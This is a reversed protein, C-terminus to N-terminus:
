INDLVHRATTLLKSSSVPKLLYAKIGIISASEISMKDSYGTCLIIPFNPHDALVTRALMEGTMRPMSMDTIILKYKEPDAQFAELASNPNEHCEVRYGKRTLIREFLQLIQEEDDIIMVKENGSSLPHSKSPTAAPHPQRESVPLYVDFRTGKNIESKVDISGELGKIIGLAVPLGLGSGNEKTSFYPDFIKEITKEDMGLGTDEVTLQIYVSNGNSGLYLHDVCSLSLTLTGGRDIMAHNANTILNMVVQHIQTPDALVLGCNPDISHRIEISQPLTARSLKIAEMVIAQMDVPQLELEKQRSFTLIQRTLDRARKAAVVIEQAAENEPSDNQLDEALMEAFGLIPSLINNFDHAIGGALTGVAELRQMHNLMSEIKKQHTLDRVLNFIAPRGEWKFRVSNTQVELIEGSRNLARYSHTTPLPEGNLRRNYLKTSAERDDPHIHQIFPTKLIEEKGYGTMECAKPNVFQVVEDQTIFVADNANEVLLRYKEESDQLSLFIQKSDTIDVMTALDATEGGYPIPRSHMSIWKVQGSKTILRWEYIEEYDAEVTQKKQAQEIMHTRDEPHVRSLFARPEWNLMEDMSYETIKTWADNAYIIRNGQLIVIGLLSQESILRFMAESQKLAAAAAKRQEIQSTLQANLESLEVTRAQVREELIRRSAQLKEQIKIRESIDRALIIVGCPQNKESCLASVSLSVPIWENNFTRIMGNKDRMNDSAMIQAANFPNKSTPPFLVELHSGVLNAERAQLMGLGSPNITVIRGERDALILTDSMTLLIKDAASAPSLVLFNYKAIAFVLGATWFLGLNQALDPIDWGFKPALFNTGFGVATGAFICVAILRCQIRRHIDGSKLSFEFTLFISVLITLFIYVLLIVTWPGKQWSLGWGFPKQVYALIREDYWQLGICIAPILFIVAWVWKRHLIHVRDTLAISFLLLFSSFSWAGVIVIQRFFGALERSTGPHHTVIKGMCWIMFCVMILACLRNIM